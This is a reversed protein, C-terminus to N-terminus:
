SLQLGMKKQAETALLREKKQAIHVSKIGMIGGGWKRQIDKNENFATTFSERFVNLQKQDDGQVSTLAVVSATKKHVLKGLRSKGKIICFPVDKKRCLQPLWCVLEIPDVDHAIVVLKATKNEVLDTVHNLGYKLEIPKKTGAAKGGDKKEEALKHLREKKQARSEPKYKSLFTLVKTAQNKDVPQAFQAVPPPVKVRQLLIRKQRQLVVYKPFKTFRTMDRPPQIANGMRFNRHRKEFMPNKKVDKATKKGTSLPAAAPGKKAPAKKKTASPAM